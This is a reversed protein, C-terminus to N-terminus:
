SFNLCSSSSFLTHTPWRSNFVRSCDLPIMHFTWLQRASEVLPDPLHVACGAGGKREELLSIGLRTARGARRQKWKEELAGRQYFARFAGDRGFRRVAEALSGPLVLGFPSFRAFLSLIDLSFFPLALNVFRVILIHVHRRELPALQFSSSSPSWLVKIGDQWLSPLHQM